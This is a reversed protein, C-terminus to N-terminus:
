RERRQGSATVTPMEPRTPARAAPTEDNHSM